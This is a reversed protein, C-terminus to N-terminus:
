SSTRARRTSAGGPTSCTAPSWSPRCPTPLGSRGPSYVVVNGDNQIVLQPCGTGQSNSSWVAAGAPNYLVLNGGPQMVAHAGDDGTTRTSWLARGGFIYEVLNGDDQMLLVYHDDPSAIAQGPSLTGYTGLTNSIAAATAPLAGLLALTAALLLTTHPLRAIRLRGRTWGRHSSM